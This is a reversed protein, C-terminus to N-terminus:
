PSDSLETIVPPNNNQSLMVFNVGAPSGGVVPDIGASGSPMGPHGAPDAAGVLKRRKSASGDGKEKREKGITVTESRMQKCLERIVRM